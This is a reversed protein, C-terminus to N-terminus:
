RGLLKGLSEGLGRAISGGASGVGKALDELSIGLAGAVSSGVRTMLNENLSFRPDNIDGELVFQVSIRGRRDQMMAVVAQRPMGMFANGGPALELDQLTLTGPGRLRGQRVVSHVELDLSGRRVGTEAAKILYPQLATLDVGQLRLKLDSERSALEVEGELQLRGDQRQGKLVGDLQLKSRGGLDPLRLEDLRAQLQELRIKLAPQRVSADFFEVVGDVLEISGVSVPTGSAVGDAEERGGGGEKAVRETLGPLVRLRGDRTRLLSLYAGEVRIRSLVVRAGLLDALSPVVLVREARLQDPAPWAGKGSDPEAPLRLGLIEVGGLGVRLERLEARPGLAALVQGQLLHVAVQFAAFGLLALLLLGGLLFLPWSRRPASVPTM